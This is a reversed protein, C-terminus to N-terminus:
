VNMRMSSLWLIQLYPNLLIEPLAGGWGVGMSDGETKERRVCVHNIGVILMCDAKM